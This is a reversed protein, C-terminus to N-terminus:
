ADALRDLLEADHELVFDVARHVEARRARDSVLQEVSQLILAHKSTHERAALDELQADLEEPIRLNIAM